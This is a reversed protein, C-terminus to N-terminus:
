MLLGFERQLRKMKPLNISVTTIEGSSVAWARGRHATVIKKVTYLGIGSGNVHLEKAKKGRMGFDWILRSEDGSPLEHGRNHVHITISDSADEVTIKIVTGGFAYKIANMLLQVLCQQVAREDGWLQLGPTNNRIDFTINREQAEASLQVVSDNIIKTVSFDAYSRLQYNPDLALGLMDAVAYASNVEREVESAKRKLAEPNPIRGDKITRVKAVIAQVCSAIDHGVEKVFLETVKLRNINQDAERLFSITNIILSLDGLLGEPITKQTNSTGHFGLFVFKRGLSELPMFTTRIVTDIDHSLRKLLAAIPLHSMAHVHAKPFREFCEKLLEQLTPAELGNFPQLPVNWSSVVLSQKHEFDVETLLVAQFSFKDCFEKWLKEVLFAVSATASTNEYQDASYM